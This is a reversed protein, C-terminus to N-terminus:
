ARGRSRLWKMGAWLAMLAFFTGADGARAADDARKNLDDEDEPVLKREMLWAVPDLRDAESKMPYPKPAVEFHLHAASTAFLATPDERTFKTVGVAGIPQGERVLEGPEVSVSDLHAYLTWPGDTGHKLVIVRGYGSFGSQWEHTAHEVVGDAAAFVPTGIPAPLDIGRHRHTDSRKYLYSRIGSTPLVAAAVPIM